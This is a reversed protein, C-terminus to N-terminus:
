VYESLIQGRRTLRIYKVGAVETFEYLEPQKAATTVAVRAVQNSLRCWGGGSSPSRGVLRLFDITEDSLKITRSM